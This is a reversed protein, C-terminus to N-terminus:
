IWLKMGGGKTPAEIKAALSDTGQGLESTFLDKLLAGLEVSTGLEASIIAALQSSIAGQGQGSESGALTATPVPTGESGTGADSSSKEAVSTYDVEVYVQTLKLSKDGKKINAGIELADIDSWEWAESDAPNLAWEKSWTKWYGPADDPHLTLEEGDTTTSDSRCSIKMYAYYAPDTGNCRARCYVTIKNINGSGSHAPLAYLDRLYTTTTNEVYTTDGDAVAEDVDEWHEEGAGPVAGPINTESGVGNPRLTETAM